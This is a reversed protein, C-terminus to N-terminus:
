TYGYFDRRILEDENLVFAGDKNEALDESWLWFWTVPDAEFHSAQLKIGFAHCKEVIDTISVNSQILTHGEFLITINTRNNVRTIIMKKFVFKMIGIRRTPGRVYGFRSAYWNALTM